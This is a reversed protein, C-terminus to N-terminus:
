SLLSIWNEELPKRDQYAAMQPAPNDPEYNWIEEMKRCKLIMASWDDFLKELSIRKGPAQNRV